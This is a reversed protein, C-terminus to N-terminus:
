FFGHHLTTYTLEKLYIMSGLPTLCPIPEIIALRHWLRDLVRAVVDREQMRKAIVPGAPRYVEGSRALRGGSSKQPIDFRRSPHPM